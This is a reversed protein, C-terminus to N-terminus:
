ETPVDQQLVGTLRDLSARAIELAVSPHAQQALTNAGEKIAPQGHHQDRHCGQARYAGQDERPDGAPRRDVGDVERARTVSAM